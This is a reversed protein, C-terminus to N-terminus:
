SKAASPPETKAAAEGSAVAARRNERLRENFYWVFWAAVALTVLWGADFRPEPRPPKPRRPLWDPKLQSADSVLLLESVSFLKDGGEASLRVYRAQKNIGLNQRSRMGALADIEARWLSFWTTGDESGLLIYTDNNDVQMFGAAIPKSSGLDWEMIGDAAVKSTWETNWEDGEYTLQGDTIVNPREIGRVPRPTGQALLNKNAETNPVVGDGPPAAAAPALPAQAFVVLVLWSM